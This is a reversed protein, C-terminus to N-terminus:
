GLRRGKIDLDTLNTKTVRRVRLLEARQQELSIIEDKFDMDM